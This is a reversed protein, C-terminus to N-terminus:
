ACSLRFFRFLKQGVELVGTELRGLVWRNWKSSDACQTKYIGQVSFNVESISEDRAESAFLDLCDLLSLGKYWSMALSPGVVNDGTEASIPIFYRVSLGLKSLETTMGQVLSEFKAQSFDVLDMKNICIIVDKLGLWHLVTCHRLTQSQIGRTIDVMVVASQAQSAGTVMNRTYQEHGPCDIVKFRSKLSSFFRYAVDITIGQERESKLGDTVLALQLSKHGRSRSARELDALQDEALVKLDLLLRGILTSKGDDVSGVVALTHTQM